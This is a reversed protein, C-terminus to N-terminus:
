MKILVVSKIKKIDLVSLPKELYVEYTKEIYSKPHAIKHNIKGDNTLLILGSSDEDLRGITSLQNLIKKDIKLLDFLSKKDPNNTKESIYGIPKYLAVYYKKKDHEIFQGKYL